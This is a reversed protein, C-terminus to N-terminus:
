VSAANCACRRDLSYGENIQLRGTLTRNPDTRARVAAAECGFSRRLIVADGAHTRRLGFLLLQM